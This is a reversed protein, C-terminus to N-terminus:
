PVQIAERGNRTILAKLMAPDIDNSIFQVHGDAFAANCGGPRLKGFGASPNNPDFEIDAPKTWFVARDADAEVLVITKSMGDGIKAFGIGNPSGDLICQPGVLALYDTKGEKPAGLNPNAFVGPMLPILARNHPSDWPEDLKFQAYLQEQELYPLLHVRWSLLPKGDPGYSAHPPLAKHSDAYMHMALILQKLQSMSQNRRAAERAAQIAPLILAVLMGVVAVTILQQQIPNDQQLGHFLVLSDGQREPVYLDDTLNSVREIYRGFAREVPDQSQQLKAVGEITQKRQMQKALAYLQELRDASAADNAHVALMAPRPSTLNLSLDVAAVLNPLELFPKAEEPFSDRKQMVAVNLWPVLLPRLSVVDVVAYLDDGGPLAKVREILPSSQASAISLLVKQLTVEPMALLTREDPMFLSPLQPQVSQLYAKGALQGPQTRSRLKEPLDSLAMPRALKLVLGYQLGLVSPPEVFAVVEDVDAPDIGLHEIGAASAVEVPMLTTAPSTLLQRPRAAVLVVAQPTVYTLDIKGASPAGIRTSDDAAPLRRPMEVAEKGSNQVPQQAVIQAAPGEVMTVSLLVCLFRGFPRGVLQRMNM